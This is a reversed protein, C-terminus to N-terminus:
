NDSDKIEYAPLILNVNYVSDTHEIELTYNNGYLIDLRRKVNELGIGEHKPSDKSPHISNMCCFVIKGDEIALKVSVFSTITYSIGHKFANELFVLFLLPPLMIGKIQSLEPLKISISVSEEPYRVRMVALYDKIFGLESSLAIRSRSSEYLMYRMLSSMEIVMDQAKVPDIEIMGHINNLMNMYFHPNIQAKLYSLQNEANEKMLSEQKLRDAFQQFLLSIALNFGVILVDYIVDLFLPLPLIPQPGPHRHIPQEHGHDAEIFSFFRFRQWLWVFGIALLVSIFYGAYNGKKLLKPILLYNNLIFLIMFPLLTAFLRGVVDLDLLPLETYSRMRMIDLLFLVIAILWLGAYIITELRKHNSPNM